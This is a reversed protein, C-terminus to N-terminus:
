HTLSREAEAPEAAEIKKLYPEMDPAFAAHKRLRAFHAFVRPFEADVRAHLIPELGKKEM